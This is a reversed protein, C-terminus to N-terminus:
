ILRDKAAKLLKDCVDEIHGNLRCGAARVHGGGGFISACENADIYKKTRISIKYSYKNVESVAFAIEVDKVNILSSIIGGTDSLATNTAEFDEKTMRVIAIQGDEYFKSKGLVRNSLDFVNRRKSRFVNYITEDVDFKYGYMEAAIEHTEKSVSSYQFCGNDAIMGAFLLQVVKNDLLNMYKLFKFIIESCSSSNEDLISLSSYQVHSKHHDIAASDKALLFTNSCNGIRQIDSSDIGIALDYIKGDSKFLTEDAILFNLNELKEDDCFVKVNKKLKEIAKKMAFASCITDPDPSIHCFLAIDTARKIKKELVDFDTTKIM